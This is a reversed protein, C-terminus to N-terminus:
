SIDRRDRTPKTKAKKDRAIFQRMYEKDILDKVFERLEICQKTTHGFDQHFECFKDRCRSLQPPIPNLRRLM